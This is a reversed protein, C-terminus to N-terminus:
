RPAMTWGPMLGIVVNGRAATAAPLPGRYMRKVVTADPTVLVPVPTLGSIRANQMVATPLETNTDYVSVVVHATGNNTISLASGRAACM